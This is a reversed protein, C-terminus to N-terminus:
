YFEDDEEEDYGDYEDDEEEEYDYEEPLSYADYFEANAEHNGLNKGHMGRSHRSEPSTRCLTCVGHVLNSTSVFEGCNECAKMFGRHALEYREAEDLGNLFSQSSEAYYDPDRFM